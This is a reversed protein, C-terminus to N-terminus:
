CRDFDDPVEFDVWIAGGRPIIRSCMTCYEIGYDENFDDDIGQSNGDIDVAAEFSRTAHIDYYAKLESDPNDKILIACNRCVGEEEWGGDSKRATRYLDSSISYLVPLQKKIAEERDKKMKDKINQPLKNQAELDFTLCKIKEM